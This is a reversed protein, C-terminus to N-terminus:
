DDSSLVGFIRLLSTFLNLVDLFISLSASVYNTELGSVVDGVDLLLYGVFLVAGAAGLVLQLGPIAFFMGALSALVLIVLGGFLMGRLQSFNRRSVIAYGACTFTGAATLAIASAVITSGGALGLYHSLLPGLTVGQLGAFATLSLLGWASNRLARTAFILAISLAFLLLSSGLTLKLGLAAISAVATLTLMAGVTVFTNTLTKTIAPSLPQRRAALSLDM